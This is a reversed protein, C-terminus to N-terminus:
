VRCPRSNRAGSVLIMAQLPAVLLSIFGSSQVVVELSSDEQADKLKTGEDWPSYFSATRPEETHFNAVVTVRGQVDCGRWFILLDEIQPLPTGVQDCAASGFGAFYARRLANLRAIHRYTASTIDFNDRDAPNGQSTTRV